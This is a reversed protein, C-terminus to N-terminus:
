LPTLLKIKGIVKFISREIALEKFQNSDVIVGDFDIFIKECKEFNIM